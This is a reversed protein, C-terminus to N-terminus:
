ARVCRAHVSSSLEDSERKTDNIEAGVKDISEVAQDSEVKLIIVKEKAM